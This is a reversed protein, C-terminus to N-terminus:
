PGVVIRIGDYKRIRDAVWCVGEFMGCLIFWAVLVAAIDFWAFLAEAIDFWTM